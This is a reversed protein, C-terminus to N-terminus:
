FRCVRSARSKSGDGEDSIMFARGGKGELHGGQGELHGGKGELKSKADTTALGVSKGRRKNKEGRISFLLLVFSCHPNEFVPACDRRGGGGATLRCQLVSTKLSRSKLM